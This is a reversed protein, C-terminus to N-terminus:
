AIRRISKVLRVIGMMVLVLGIIAALGFAVTNGWFTVYLINPIAPFECFFQTLQLGFVILFCGSILMVVSIITKM